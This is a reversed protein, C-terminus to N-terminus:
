RLRVTIRVDGGCVTVKMGGDKFYRFPFKSVRKRKEKIKFIYVCLAKLENGGSGDRTDPLLNTAVNLLFTLKVGIGIRPM